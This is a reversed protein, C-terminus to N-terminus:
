IGHLGVSQYLPTRREARASIDNTADFNLTPGHGKGRGM